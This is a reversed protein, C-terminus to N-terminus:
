KDEFMQGGIIAGVLPDQRCLYDGDHKSWASERLGEVHILQFEETLFLQCM